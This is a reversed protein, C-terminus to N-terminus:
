PSRRQYDGRCIHELNVMKLRVCTSDDLRVTWRDHSGSELGRINIGQRGNLHTASRLGTLRVDFELHMCDSIMYVVEVNLARSPNPVSCQLTITIDGHVSSARNRTHQMVQQAAKSFYVDEFWAFVAALDESKRATTLAEAIEAGRFLKDDFSRSALITAEPKGDPYTTTLVYMFGTKETRPVTM